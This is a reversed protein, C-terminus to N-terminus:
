RGGYAIGKKIDSPLLLEGDGDDGGLFKRTVTKIETSNDRGSRYVFKPATKERVMSFLGVSFSM